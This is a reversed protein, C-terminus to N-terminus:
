NLAEGQDRYAWVLADKIEEGIQDLAQPAGLQGEAQWISVNVIRTKENVTLHYISKSGSHGYFTITRTEFLEDTMQPASTPNQMNVNVEGCYLVDNIEREFHISYKVPEYPATLASDKDKAIYEYGVIHGEFRNTDLFYFVDNQEQQFQKRFRDFDSFSDFNVFAHSGGPNTEISANIADDEPPTPTPFDCGTLVLLLAFVSLLLKAGTQTVHRFIRKKM